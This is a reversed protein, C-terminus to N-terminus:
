RATAEVWGVLKGTVDGVARDYADVIAGVRNDAAPVQADFIQEGVTTQDPRSLSVYVRVVVTPAADPNGYRAEFARVDTRLAFDAKGQQGRGILRVPGSSADFANSVAEDFLVQAPAVWRSQAIYAAKGGTVTLIRDDAAEEVFRTNTRFVGVKHSVPGAPGPHAASSQGFRYLQAPKSKPLLSICASLALAAAGLATLRVLARKM